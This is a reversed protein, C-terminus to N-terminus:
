VETASVREDMTIRLRSFVWRVSDMEAMEVVLGLPLEDQQFQKNRDVQGEGPDRAAKEKERKDAEKQRLVLLYEIFFRALFFTRVNDTDRIKSREM